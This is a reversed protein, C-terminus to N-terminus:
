DSWIKWPAGNSDWLDCLLNKDRLTDMPQWFGKHKFVGLEGRSVLNELPGREWVCEDGTLLELVKTELVFFGANVLGAGEPKEEFSVVRNGDLALAGFRGSVAAGTVTATLGSRAHTDVLAGIDVDGVGDGYTFLFPQGESLFNKVRLLRGGTMTEQGTDVVTVEWREKPRSHISRNGDTLGFTIDSNHLFYNAFYEKILYGRYGCCIIFRRVGYSDFIKMIHWLLPKGGVEVMPKPRLLTEESLRTGLGGALIVATTVNKVRM